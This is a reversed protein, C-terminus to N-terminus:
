FDPIFMLTLSPNPTVTVLLVSVMYGVLLVPLTKHTIPVGLGESVGLNM